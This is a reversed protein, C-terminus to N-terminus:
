NLRKQIDPSLSGMFAEVASTYSGSEGLKENIERHSMDEQLVQAKVGHKNALNSFAYAQPCSDKRRTSCIGFWPLSNRSLHQLPSVENWYSSSSGFADDYFLPHQAQMTESVNMAASDLSITGLWPKAGYKAALAPDAGLLSVLHAGASHGMVIIESPNGNWKAANTQIYAIASAVDGVQALVNANDPLMRYNVSIFIFGKSVWRNVKNTVVARGSMDGVCWAGGHVMIIIPASEGSSLPQKPMYVNFAQAKHQGYSAVYTPQISGAMAAADGKRNALRVLKECSLNNFVPGYGDSSKSANGM